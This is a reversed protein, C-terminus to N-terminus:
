DNCVVTVLLRSEEKVLFGEKEDYTWDQFGKPLTVKGKNDIQFTVRGPLHTVWGSGGGMGECAAFAPSSLSFSLLALSLFFTKM